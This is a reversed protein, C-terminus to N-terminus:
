RQAALTKIKSFGYSYVQDGACIFVLVDGAAANAVLEAYDKDLRGNTEPLSLHMEGPYDQNEDSPMDEIRTGKVVYVLLSKGESFIPTMLYKGTPYKAM